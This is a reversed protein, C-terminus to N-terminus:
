VQLRALIGLSVQPSAVNQGPKATAIASFNSTSCVQATRVCEDYQTRVPFVSPAVGAALIRTCALNGEHCPLHLPPAIRNISLPSDCVIELDHVHACSSAATEHHCVAGLSSFQVDNCDACGCPIASRGILCIALIMSFIRNNVVVLFGIRKCIV